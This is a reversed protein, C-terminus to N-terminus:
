DEVSRHLENTFEALWTNFNDDTNYQAVAEARTIGQRILEAIANRDVVAKEMMSTELINRAEFGHEFAPSTYLTYENTMDVGIALSKQVIPSVTEPSESIAKDIAKQSNGEYTVPMYGSSIAFRVNQEPQTIWKLFTVAAQERAEDSKTVVMGAGQQVATPQTGEFNPLPYVAGEIPDTSGDEYTVETPFYTAGSSACIMAALDGTKMDDSRFRGYAGYYGNIYPVYFNDWLKRMVQSDIQLEVNGNEVHFIETGLQKSGIIMYNAFADRGFFTRGDDPIDPTQEDTWNYYKEAAQAIGEWTSLCSDDTGTASCFQDWETANLMLLETSKAVPFIKLSGDDTFRGEELYASVYQKLDDETLYQSLDAAMGEKDIEYATDAYAAFIDPVEDAGIKDYIANKVKETLEAVSGQSEAEVVIHNENGVTENFEQVLEDFIQQQAGNYYHWVIISAPAEAKERTSCSCLSIGLISSLTVLIVAKRWKM